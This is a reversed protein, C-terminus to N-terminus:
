SDVRYNSKKCNDIKDLNLSCFENSTNDFENDKINKKFKEL